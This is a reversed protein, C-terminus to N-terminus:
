PFATREATPTGMSVEGVPSSCLLLTGRQPQSDRLDKVATAAVARDLAGSQGIFDRAAAESFCCDLIVVCRQQPAAVKMVRALDPAKIGTEAEMGRRSRRVLLSLHGQDDTYGHGVYYIMGEDPRLLMFDGATRRLGRCLPRSFANNIDCWVIREREAPPCALPGSSSYYAIPDPAGVDNSCDVLKIERLIKFKAVSITAEQWPRMESMATEKDTAMYVYPIGKPNARGELARDILPLMRKAPHPVPLSVRLDPTSANRDVRWAHGSQARWLFGSNINLSRVAGTALVVQLFTDTQSSHLYRRQGRVEDEFWRYSAVNEFEAM